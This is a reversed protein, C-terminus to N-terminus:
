VGEEKPAEIPQTDETVKEVTPVTEAIQPVMLSYAEKLQALSLGHHGEGAIFEAETKTQWYEQNFGIENYIM